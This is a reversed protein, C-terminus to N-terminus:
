VSTLELRAAAKVATCYTYGITASAFPKTASISASMAANLLELSETAKAAAVAASSCFVAASLMIVSTLEAM